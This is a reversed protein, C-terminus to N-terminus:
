SPLLRAMKAEDTIPAEAIKNIAINTRLIGKYRYWFNSILGNSQGNSQFFALPTIVRSTTNGMWGDDSTMESLLLRGGAMSPSPM